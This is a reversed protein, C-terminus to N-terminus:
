FFSMFIFFLIPASIILPTLNFLKLSEFYSYTPRNLDNTLPKVVRSPFNLIMQRAKSWSHPGQLRYQYPLAPGFLCVLFLFPDSLMMKSMKPTAGIEQYIDDMTIILDCQITHRPSNVFREENAKRRSQIESKMTSYDPLSVKKKMLQAFWRSQAEALPFIPGNPQMLGIIGLSPHILDPPFTYKYLNVRNDISDLISEKLFPFEIKYGTAFVVADIFTCSKEGQFTVGSTSFLKIDGKILIRGTLIKCPLCDNVTPHQSLVRHKPKLSYISHDFKKELIFKEMFFSIIKWGFLKLLFYFVRNTIFLDFPLGYPGCRTYVWSGRRTSLYVQKAVNSLEVAADVGSNGIGIVLVSLDKFSDATKLFQSHLIRGQFRDQGPLQPISPNTHHGICVMVGDCIEEFIEQEPLTKFTIKWRGTADYDQFKSVNIVEHNFRIHSLLEFKEAYMHLYQDVQSNHMYNPFESPPPFDSFASMEKHTNIVTSKMVSPYKSREDRYHWLGSISDSKEFCIVDIGEEKCAKIATLGTSGAGIVAIMKKMKLSDSKVM